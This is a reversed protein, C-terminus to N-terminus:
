LGGHLQHRFGAASGEARVSFGAGVDVAISGRLVPVKSQWILHSVTYDGSMVKEDGELYM